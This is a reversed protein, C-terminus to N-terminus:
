HGKDQVIGRSGHFMFKQPGAFRTERPNMPLWEQSELIVKSRVRGVSHAFLKEQGM